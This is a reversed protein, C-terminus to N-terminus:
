GDSMLDAMFALDAAEVKAIAFKVNQSRGIGEILTVTIHKLSGLISYSMRAGVVVVTSELTLVRRFKLFSRSGAIDIMAQHREGLRTFDERTYDITQDAGLSRALEVNRTSCVATVECGFAKAIQVAFTGVGGSAGNILVRQGPRVAAHDRLALL